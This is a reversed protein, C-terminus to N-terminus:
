LVGRKKLIVTLRHAVQGIALGGTDFVIDAAEEYLARRQELLEAPPVSANLLPRTEPRSIRAVAEEATVKLYVVTGLQRLMRRNQPRLVVGGGCSLICRGRLRMGALLARERARFGEEGEAEFIQAVSMGAEQQIFSDMDICTMKERRAIIRAITTKGSGM